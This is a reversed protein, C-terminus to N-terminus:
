QNLYDKNRYLQIIKIKIKIYVLVEQKIFEAEDVSSAKVLAKQHENIKKKLEKLKNTMESYTEAAFAIKKELELVTEHGSKMQVKSKLIEVDKETTKTINLVCELENQLKAVYVKPDEEKVTKKVAMKTDLDSNLRKLQNLLLNNKEKLKGIQIRILM